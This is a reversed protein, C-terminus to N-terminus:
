GGEEDSEYERLLAFPNRKYLASLGKDYGFTAHPLLKKLCLIVSELATIPLRLRMKTGDSLHIHLYHYQLLPTGFPLFTRVYVWVVREPYKRLVVMIPHYYPNPKRWLHYSLQGGTAFLWGGLAALFLMWFSPVFFYVGLFLGGCLMLGVAVGLLRRREQIIARKILKIEALVFISRM